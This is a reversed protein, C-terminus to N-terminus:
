EDLGDRTRERRRLAVGAAVLSGGAIVTALLSLGTNPLGSQASAVPTTPQQSAVSVGKVKTGYQDTASAPTQASALNGLSGCLALVVLVTVLALRSYVHRMRLEGKGALEMTGANAFRIGPVRPQPEGM